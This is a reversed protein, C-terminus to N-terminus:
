DKQGRVGVRLPPLEFADELEGALLVRGAPMELQVHASKDPLTELVKGVPLAVADDGVDAIRGISLVKERGSKRGHQDLGEQGRVGPDWAPRMDDREDVVVGALPPRRGLM